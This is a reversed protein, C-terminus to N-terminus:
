PGPTIKTFLNPDKWIRLLYNKYSFTGLDNHGDSDSGTTGTGRSGGIDGASCTIFISSVSFPASLFHIMYEISSAVM